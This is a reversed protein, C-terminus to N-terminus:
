RMACPVHVQWVTGYYAHVTLTDSFPDGSTTTFTVTGQQWGSALTSTVVSIVPQIATSGGTPTVTLWAASTGATWSLTEVAQFSVAAAPPLADAPDAMLTLTDPQVTFASTPQAFVAQLTDYPRIAPNPRYDVLVVYRM